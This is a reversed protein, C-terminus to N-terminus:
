SACGRYRPDRSSGGPGLLWERDVQKGNVVILGPAYSENRPSSAGFDASSAVRRDRVRVHPSSSVATTTSPSLVQPPQLQQEPQESSTSAPLAHPFRAHTRSADHVQPQPPRHQFAGTAAAAATEEAYANAESDRERESSSQAVAVAAAAALADRAENLRALLTRVMAASETADLARWSTAERPTSGDTAVLVRDPEAVFLRGGMQLLNEATMQVRPVVPQQQEEDAARKSQQPGRAKEHAAPQEQLQQEDASLGQASATPANANATALARERRLEARSPKQLQQQQFQVHPPPHVQPLSAQPVARRAAFERRAEEPLAAELYVLQFKLDACYLVYVHLVTCYLLNTCYSYVPAPSFHHSYFCSYRRTPWRRAIRM